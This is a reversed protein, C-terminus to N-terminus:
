APSTIVDTLGGWLERWQVAGKWNGKRWFISADILEEGERSTPVDERMAEPAMEMACPEGMECRVEEAKCRM